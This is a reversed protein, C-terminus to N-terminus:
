FNMLGRQFLCHTPRERRQPQPLDSKESVKRCPARHPRPDQKGEGRATWADLGGQEKLEKEQTKLTKQSTQTPTHTQTYTYTYTCVHFCTAQIHIHTQPYMHTYTHTDRHIHTEIHVCM